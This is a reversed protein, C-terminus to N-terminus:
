LAEGSGSAPNLLGVELPFFPFPLSPYPLSPPPLSPFPFPFPLSPSPFLSLLPPSPDGSSKPCISGQSCICYIMYALRDDM